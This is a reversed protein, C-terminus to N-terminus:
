TLMIFSISINHSYFKLSMSNFFKTGTCKGGSQCVQYVGCNGQATGDGAAGNVKCASVYVIM